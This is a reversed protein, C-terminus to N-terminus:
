KSWDYEVPELAQQKTNTVVGPVTAQGGYNPQAAPATVGRPSSINAIVKLAALPQAALYSDSLMQEQGTQNLKIKAILEAKAAAANAVLEALPGAIEVPAAALYSELTTGTQPAPPPPPAANAVPAPAPKKIKDIEKQIREPTMLELVPRDAATWDSNLTLLNDILAKKDVNSEKCNCNTVVPAENQLLGCGRDLSCAGKKDPLVALHDPIIDNVEGQYKLGGFEGVKDTANTYLGTSVEMQEGKVLANYVRVDVEKTKLEDFWAEARLKTDYSANFVLGVKRSDLVGPSRASVPEGNAEPHYVVLPMHNWVAPNAKLKDASYLLPGGSGEHVGETLLVVPAVLYSRGEHTERRIRAALNFVM